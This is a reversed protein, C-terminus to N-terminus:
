KSHRAFFKWLGSEFGTPWAHGGDANTILVVERNDACTATSTTRPGVVSEVPAGCNDVRRWSEIIDAVPPGDVLVPGGKPTGGFRLTPDDLNNYALVSTPHPNRCAGFQTAAVPGIAAFLDTTCALTYAMMGGNSMGTVYVRSRDVGPVRNVMETLFGVDDINTQAAEGCCGQANWSHGVGDPYVVKFKHADALKDWQMSGEVPASRGGLGHLMVVLPAASPLSKPAYLRYSREIGGFSFTHRESPV